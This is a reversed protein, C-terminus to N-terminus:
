DNEGGLVHFIIDEYEGVIENYKELYEPKKEKRLENLYPLDKNMFDRLCILAADNLENDDHAKKRLTTLIKEKRRELEEEIGM